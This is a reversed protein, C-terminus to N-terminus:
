RRTFHLELMQTNSFHLKAETGTHRWSIPPLGLCVGGDASLFTAATHHNVGKISAAKIIMIAQWLQQQETKELGRGERRNKRPTECGPM